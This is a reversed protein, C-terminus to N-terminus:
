PRKALWRSLAPGPLPMERPTLLFDPGHHRMTPLASLDFARIWRHDAGTHVLTFPMRSLGGYRDVLQRYLRQFAEWDKGADAVVWTLDRSWKRAEPSALMRELVSLQVTTSPSGADLWLWLAPGNGVQEEVTVREEGPTFVDLSDPVRQEVAWSRRLLRMEEAAPGGTELRDMLRSLGEPWSREQFPQVPRRVGFADDSLRMLFWVATKDADPEGWWMSTSEVLADWDGNRLARRHRQRDEETWTDTRAFLDLGAEFRRAEAWTVPSPLAKWEERLADVPVDPLGLRATWIMAQLVEGLADEDPGALSVALTDLAAAVEPTKLATAEGQDGIRGGLVEAERRGVSEGWLLSQQWQAATGATATQIDRELAAVMDM